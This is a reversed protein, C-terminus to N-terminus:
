LPRSRHEFGSEAFATFVRKRETTAAGQAPWCDELREGVRRRISPYVQGFAEPHQGVCPVAVVFSSFSSKRNPEDVKTSAM